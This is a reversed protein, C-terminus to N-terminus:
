HHPWSPPRALSPRRDHDKRKGVHPRAPSGDIAELDQPAEPAPLCIYPRSEPSEWCSNTATVVFRRGTGVPWNTVIFTREPGSTGLLVRGGRWRPDSEDRPLGDFPKEYFRYGSALREDAKWTFTVNTFDARAMAASALLFLFFKM